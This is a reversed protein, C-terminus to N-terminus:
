VCAVYAQRDAPPPTQLPTQKPSPTASNESSPPPPSASTSVDLSGSPTQSPVPSTPSGAPPAPEKTPTELAEHSKISAVTATREMGPMKEPQTCVRPKKTKPVYTEPDFFNKLSEPNLDPIHKEGTSPSNTKEPRPPTPAAVSETEDADKKKEKKDSKEKKDTKEKKDSKKKKDVKEKKGKKTDTGEKHEKKDKKEKKAHEAKGKPTTTKSQPPEDGADEDTSTEQKDDKSTAAVADKNLEQKDDKSTAAAADKSPEQNGDKSTTRAPKPSAEKQPSVKHDKAKQATVSAAVLETIAAQLNGPNNALAAAAVVEEYGLAVLKGLLKARQKEPNEPKSKTTKRTTPAAPGSSGSSPM